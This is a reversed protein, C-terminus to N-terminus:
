PLSNFVKPRSLFLGYGPLTTGLSNAVTPDFGMLRELVDSVTNGNLDELYDASGNGDIDVPTGSSNLGVYHYGIDIRTNAEKTQNTQTTYHYMGVLAANTISGANILSSASPLYYRGLWSTQWNYSGTVVVDTSSQLNTRNGQLFANYALDTCYAAGNAGDIIDFKVSDFATDRISWLPYTGGSTRHLYLGGGRLLCNRAIFVSNTNQVVSANVDAWLSVNDFLCNTLLLRTLYGGFSGGLFECNAAEFTLYGYDDRAVTAEWSANPFKTFRARVVPSNTFEPWAWGTIGGPGYGGQWIGNCNEQALNARLWYAPQEVTGAFTITVRDNAKIGHGAHQWGSTTRFWGVATGASFTINTAVVCGGFVYDLPAYHWGIDPIDTDRQAQPTFTTGVSITANSYVQPPYTTRSRLSARTPASINTTGANRYPSNPALYHSGGGVVQFVGSDSTLFACNNTATTFYEFNTLNVFLCNDLYVYGTVDEMLYRCNHATVNEAQLSDGPYGDTAVVTDLNWALVNRLVPWWLGPAFGNKCRVLEVDQLTINGAVANSLYCFRANSVLQPTSAGSLDLAIKGYYAASPNGSGMNEGVTSDHVATFIVPAYHSGKFAVNTSIISASSSIPYKICAGNEFTTVGALNVPGSILYGEYAVFTMNTRSTAMTIYDLVFGSKPAAASALEMGKSSSKSAYHRQPLLDKLAAVRRKGTREPSFSANRRPLADLHPKIRQYPVREILFERDGDLKQYQKTVNVAPLEKANGISFAKGPGIKMSRFAITEDTLVQGKSYQLSRSQKAPSEGADFETLFELIATDSSMGWLEPEPLTENIIIDQELGARTYTYRITCNVDSTAAEYVVQNPPEIRGQCSQVEGIMVSQGTRPDYFSLMLPHSRIRQGDPGELDISGYTALDNAFVVKHPGKRAVAGGPLPEIEEVTDLWAGGAEEQYHM